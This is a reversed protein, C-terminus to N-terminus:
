QVYFTVKKTIEYSPSTKKGIAPESDAWLQEHCLGWISLGQTQTCCLCRRIELSPAGIGFLSDDKNCVPIGYPWAMDHICDSWLTVRLTVRFRPLEVEAMAKRLKVEAVTQLRFRNHSLM